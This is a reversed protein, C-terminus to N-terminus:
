KCCPGHFNYLLLLLKMVVGQGTSTWAPTKRKYQSIEENNCFRLSFIIGSLDSIYRSAGPGCSDFLKLVTPIASTFQCRCSSHMEIPLMEWKGTRMMRPRAVSATSSLWQSFSMLRQRNLLTTHTWRWSGLLDQSVCWVSDWGTNVMLKCMQCAPLQGLSLTPNKCPFAGRKWLM